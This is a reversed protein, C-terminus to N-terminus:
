KSNEKISNPWIEEIEDYQAQENFSEWLVGSPDKEATFSDFRMSEVGVHRVGIQNEPVVRLSINMTETKFLAYEHPIILEPSVSFKKEYFSISESLSSVGIAIHVREM